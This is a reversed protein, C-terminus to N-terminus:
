DFIESFPIEISTGDLRIPDSAEEMGSPRYIWISRETPHILWVVPVGFQLYDQIRTNVRTVIDEPSLIEICALPSSRLIQEEPREKTVVVDPVRFRMERIQFRWEPIAAFGRITFAVILRGQVWGHDLEGGNREQLTGDVYDCDPRYVTHLYEDISIQTAAPM